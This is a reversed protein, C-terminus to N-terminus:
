GIGKIELDAEHANLRAEYLAPHCPGQSIWRCLRKKDDESIRCGFIVGTLLEPPFRHEGPDNHPDLLRWEAEYKWDAHKTLALDAIRQWGSANPRFGLRMPLYKVPLAAGFANPDAADFELCIGKHGNAYHAWMLSNDNKESLCFIGIGDVYTQAEQRLRDLREPRMMTDIQSGRQATDLGPYQERFMLDFFRRLEEPSVNQFSPIVFESPDNLESRRAFYIRCELIIAKLRSCDEPQGLSRYKYLHQPRCSRHDILCGAAKEEAVIRGPRRWAIRPKAGRGAVDEIGEDIKAAFDPAAALHDFGLVPRREIAEESGSCPPARIPPSTALGEVIMNLARIKRYSDPEARPGVELGLCLGSACTLTPSRRSGLRAGNPSTLGNSSASTHPKKVTIDHRDLVRWVM